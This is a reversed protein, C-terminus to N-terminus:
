CCGGCDCGCDGEGCEEGSAIAEAIEKEEPIYGVIVAKGDIALVPSSMVGMEAIKQMDDVYEVECKLGLKKVVEQTRSYLKKCNACGMGLVQIKM